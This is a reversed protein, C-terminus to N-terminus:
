EVSLEKGFCVSSPEDRYRGFPTIRNWGQREYLALAEPQATGTELRLGRMGLETARRELHELIVRGVGARRADPATYMRKVEGVDSRPDDRKVAGCGVAGGDRWAVVFVGCPPRVLDPTVEALYGALDAAEEEPTWPDTEDAYRETIEASLAAVLRQAVESEYPEESLSIM